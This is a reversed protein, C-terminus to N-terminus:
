QAPVEVWFWGRLDGEAYGVARDDPYREALAARVPPPIANAPGHCTLCQPKLRIPLVVALRGNPGALFTPEGPSNAVLSEAWAPPRNNPNRLKTSTRGIRVGKERGVADAIGAADSQCVGVAAAPGDAQVVATLRAMLREFLADRAAEARRRQDQQTATLESEAVRAWATPDTPRDPSCGVACMFILLPLRAM